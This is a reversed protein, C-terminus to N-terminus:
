IVKYISTFCGLFLGFNINKMSKLNDILIKPNKLFLKPKMLSDALTHGIWGLLFPRSFAKFIYVPCSVKVHPCTSHRFQTLYLLQNMFGQDPNKIKLSREDKTLLKILDDDKIQDNKYNIALKDSSDGKQHAHMLAKRRPKAEEAGVVFKLALSVPDTGYGHKKILYMLISMSITFLLVEGNPLPKFGRSVVIRFITEVAINIVYM